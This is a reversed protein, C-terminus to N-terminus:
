KLYQYLGVLVSVSGGIMFLTGVDGGIVAGLVIAAGGVIMMAMPKGMSMPQARQFMHADPAQTVSRVATATVALRPGAAQTPAEVSASTDSALRVTDVSQASATASAACLVVAIM